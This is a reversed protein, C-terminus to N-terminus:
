KKEEFFEKGQEFGDKQGAHFVEFIVNRINLIDVRDTIKATEVIEQIANELTNMRERLQEQSAKLKM